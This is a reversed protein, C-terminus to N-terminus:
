PPELAGLGLGSRDPLPPLKLGNFGSGQRKKVVLRGVKPLFFASTPTWPTVPMFPGNLDGNIFLTQGTYGSRGRRRSPGSCLYGLVVVVLLAGLLRFVLPYRM